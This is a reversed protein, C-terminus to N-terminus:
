KWEHLEFGDVGDTLYTCNELWDGCNHYGVEKKSVPIHTHGCIVGSYGCTQANQVSVEEFKNQAAITKSMKKLFVSMSFKKSFWKMLWTGVVPLFPYKVTADYKDGHVVLYEFGESNIYKAEKEVKIGAIEMGVFHRMVADHNGPIYTVSIKKAKNLFVQMLELSWASNEFSEGILIPSVWFDIIDGILYLEDYELKKLMEILKAVQSGEQYLHVDSVFLAKYM